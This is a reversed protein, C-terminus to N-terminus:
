KVTAVFTGEVVIAKTPEPQFVDDRQGAAVCLHVRGPLKEGERTGFEVRLSALVGHEYEIGDPDSRVELSQVEPLWMGESKVPTPQETMDKVPLLRFTKGDVSEGEKVMVSLAVERPSFLSDADRLSVAYVEFTEENASMGQQMRIEAVPLPVAKGGVSLTVPKDPGPTKSCDLMPKEAFARPADVLLLCAALLTPFRFAIPM